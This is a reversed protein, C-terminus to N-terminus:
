KLGKGSTRYLGPQDIFDSEGVLLGCNAISAQPHSSYLSLLVRPLETQYNVGRVYDTVGYRLAAVALEESGNWAVLVVPVKAGYSYKKAQELDRLSLQRDCGICILDPVGVESVQVDGMERFFLLLRGRIDIADSIVRVIPKHMYAATGIELTGLETNHETGSVSM